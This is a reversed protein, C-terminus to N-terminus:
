ANEELLKELFEAVGDHENDPCVADAAALVAEDANAMAVGLGAARIMSLDNTGDGFAVTDELPIDLERCLTRLADGKNAERINLEINTPISTSVALEPFRLPLERLERRRLDQDRFHAQAKQISCGKGRLYARLDPVISRTQRFLYLIAPDGLYEGARPYWAESVYGWDDIYCDFMADIGALYDMLRLALANPIEARAIVRDEREDYLKAGNIMLYYRSFSQRCLEAPLGRYTRGTAPVVLAGAEAAARLARLTRKSLSKDGHLVTGDLDFAILKYKM